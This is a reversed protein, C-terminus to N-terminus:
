PKLISGLSLSPGYPFWHTGFELLAKLEPQTLIFLGKERIIDLGDKNKLELGIPSVMNHIQDRPRQNQNGIFNFKYASYLICLQRRKVEWPPWCQKICLLSIKFYSCCYNCKKQLPEGRDHHEWHGIMRSCKLVDQYNFTHQDIFVQCILNVLTHMRGCLLRKSTWLYLSSNSAMYSKPSAWNQQLIARYLNATTSYGTFKKNTKM